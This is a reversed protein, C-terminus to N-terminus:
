FNNLDLYEIDDYDTNSIDLYKLNMKEFILKKPLKVNYIDLYNLKQFNYIEPFIEIDSYEITLKELNKNINKLIDKNNKDFFEIFLKKLNENKSLDLNYLNLEIHLEELNEFRGFNFYPKKDNKEIYQNFIQLYVIDKPIEIQNQFSFNEEENNLDFKIKCHM